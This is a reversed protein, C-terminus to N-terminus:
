FFSNFLSYKKQFKETLEATQIDSVATELIIRWSLIIPM